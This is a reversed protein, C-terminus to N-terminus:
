AEKGEEEGGQAATDAKVVAQQRYMDHLAVAHRVITYLPGGNCSSTSNGEPRKM